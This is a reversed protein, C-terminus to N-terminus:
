SHRTIRTLRHAVPFGYSEHALDLRVCEPTEREVNLVLAHEYRFAVDESDPNAYPDGELDVVDGPRINKARVRTKTIDKTRTM